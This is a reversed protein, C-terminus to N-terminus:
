KKLYEAVIIIAAQIALAKWITSEIKRLRVEIDIRFQTLTDIREQAIALDKCPTAHQDPRPYSM